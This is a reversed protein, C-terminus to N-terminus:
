PSLSNDVAVGGGLQVLGVLHRGCAGRRGDSISKTRAVVISIYVIYKITIHDHATHSKIAPGQRVGGKRATDITADADDEKVADSPRFRRLPM